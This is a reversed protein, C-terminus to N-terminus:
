IYNVTSINNCPFAFRCQTKYCQPYSFSCFRLAYFLCVSFSWSPSVSIADTLDTARFARLPGDHDYRTGRACVRRTRANEAVM